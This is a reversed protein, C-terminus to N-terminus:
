KREYMTIGNWYGRDFYLQMGLSMPKDPWILFNKNKADSELYGQCYFKDTHIKLYYERNADMNNSLLTYSKDEKYIKYYMFFPVGLYDNLPKCFAVIQSSVSQQYAIAQKNFM